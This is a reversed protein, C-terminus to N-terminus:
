RKSLLWRARTSRGPILRSRSRAAITALGILLLVHIQPEPVPTLLLARDFGNVNITVVIQGFDNIGMGGDLYFYSGDKPQLVSTLDIM